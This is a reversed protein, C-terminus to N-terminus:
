KSVIQTEGCAPCMVEIPRKTTSIEIPTACSDCQVSYAPASSTQKKARPSSTRAPGPEEPEEAEARRMRRSNRAVLILCAVVLMFLLIEVLPLDMIRTYWLPNSNEKVTIVESTTGGGNVYMWFVQDGEDVTLPVIYLLTGESANTQTSQTPGNTLGYTISFTASMPTSGLSVIRYKVAITEGPAYVGRNFNMLIVYGAMQEVTDEGFVLRGGESALVRFTYSESPANPVTFTFAGGTTNGESVSAGDADIVEYYISPYRMIMSVLSYSVRISDGPVYRDLGANVLVVAYKVELMKYVTAKNGKGDDATVSIWLAGEFDNRISYNFGASSATARAFLSGDAGNDRVEYVYTYITSGPSGITSVTTGIRVTDGSTYQTKDLTIVISLGASTSVKFTEESTVSFLGKTAKVYMKFETGDALTPSLQFVSNAYGHVDSTMSREYEPIAVFQGEIKQSVQMEIACAPEPPDSLSSNDRNETAITKVSAVVLGGPAYVEAGLTIIAGLLSVNFARSDSQTREPEAATDNFWGVVSYNLSDNALQRLQYSWSGAAKAFTHTDLMQGASNMVVIRGFGDLALSEDKINNATWFINVFDGGLYATRDTELIFRYGQVKFVASGMHLTGYSDYVNVTYNGDPSKEQISYTVKVSGGDGVSVDQFDRLVSGTKDHTVIVDFVDKPTGWVIIDVSEGPVYINTDTYRSPILTIDDFTARARGSAYSLSSALLFAVIITVALKGRHM